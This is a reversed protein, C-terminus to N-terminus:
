GHELSTAAPVPMGIGILEVCVKRGREAADTKFKTLTEKIDFDIFHGNADVIVYAGDPIRALAARLAPKTLFTGDRLFRIVIRGAEKKVELSGRVNARLVFAIGVVVGLVVGKLLNTMFIALATAAFPVFQEYGLELQRKAIRPHCLKLGVDMLIVSLCGIPIRNLLPAFFLLAVALLAGHVIASLGHRAGAAVNASGRIIVATIPLGGFMGSVFNGVGQALLEKDADSKRKLPDLMDMAELSLLSEISAVVAITAALAWVDPRSLASWSPTPMSSLLGEFGGIPVGVLMTSDLAFKPVTQVWWENLVTAVVVVVLTSSLWNVRRPAIQEWTLLIVASVGSIVTAGPHADTLIAGFESVGFAIPLETGILLLGIAALMGKIVASPVISAAAGIRLFGFCFQMAGALVTCTLFNSFGKVDQIGVVVIATLGAAPGSISLPSRSIWPIVLGGVAGAILGSVPPVGCAIALGLCLPLAVLFVVIGAPIDVHPTAWLSFSGAAASGRNSGDLEDDSDIDFSQSITM